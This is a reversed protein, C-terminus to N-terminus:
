HARDGSNPWRRGVSPRRDGILKTESSCCRRAAARPRVRREGENWYPGTFARETGHQRTVYFQQLPAATAMRRRISSPRPSRPPRFDNSPTM